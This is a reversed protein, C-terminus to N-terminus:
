RRLTETFRQLEAFIGGELMSFDPKSRELNHNYMWFVIKLSYDEILEGKAHTSYRSRVTNSKALNNWIKSDWHMQDVIFPYKDCADRFSIYEPDSNESNM